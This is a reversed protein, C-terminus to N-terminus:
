QYYEKVIIRGAAGVGGDASTGDGKAGGAGVTYTYSAAPSNIQLFVYEGGGGGALPGSSWATNGGAGGGGGGTNTAGNGGDSAGTGGAGAGGFFTGGGGGGPATATTLSGGNGQSGNIRYTATGSGASGGAGPIDLASGGGPNAVVSNFSSSGGASGSVYGVGSSIGSGGGGGGVMQVEIYKVGAPTTYTQATGSNFIQYTPATTLSSITAFSPAAAGNSKLVEGSNGAATVEQSDADTWVVGGNVATMNKNTGGKNLPLITITPEKANLQTQIASTVGSVYGLETATVAGASVFGSGDSVLARSATLAALKSYVIAAGASIDANVISALLNLKSYAIAAAADIDVNFLTASYDKLLKGTTGNWRAFGNNTSSAPGVVDGPVVPAQVGGDGSIFM